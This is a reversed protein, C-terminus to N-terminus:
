YAHHNRRGATVPAGQLYSCAAGLRVVFPAKPADLPLPQEVACANDGSADGKAPFVTAAPSSSIAASSNRLAAIRDVPERSALWAALGWLAVPGQRDVPEWPVEQERRCPVLRAEMAEAVQGRCLQAEAVGAWRREVVGRSSPPAAEERQPRIRAAAASQGEAARGPM